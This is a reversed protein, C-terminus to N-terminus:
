FEGADILQVIEDHKKDVPKDVMNEKLQWNGNEDQYTFVQYVLIM